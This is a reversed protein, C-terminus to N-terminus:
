RLKSQCYKSDEDFEYLNLCRCSKEGLGTKNNHKLLCIANKGCGGNNKCPNDISVQILSHVVTLGYPRRRIRHFKFVGSGDFKNARLISSTGWDIWFIYSGFVHISFPHALLHHNLLIPIVNRGNFDSTYISHSHADAWYIRNNTNDVTLGNPWRGRIETLNSLIIRDTGDMSSREIRPTNKDWDTWFLYGKKPAVAISRPSGINGSILVIRFDGDFNSVQIQDLAADTWYLREAVWDVAIGEATTQGYNVVSKVRSVIGNKYTASFISNVAIDTFFIRLSKDTKNEYYDLGVISNLNEVLITKNGSVVASRDRNLVDGNYLYLSRGTSYIIKANDGSPICTFNDTRDITYDPLCSCERKPKCIQSCVGYDTCKRNDECRNYSNNRLKMGPPCVCQFGKPSNFCTGECEIRNHICMKFKCLGTEDDGLPCDQIGDCTQTYKICKSHNLCLYNPAECKNPKCNAEDSKDPCDFVGNCRNLAKNCNELEDSKCDWEDEGNLCNKVGDCRLTKPICHPRTTNGGCLFFNSNPKCAEKQNSVTCRSPDEDQSFPCHSIGDCVLSENICAIGNPFCAFEGVECTKPTDCVAEDQGDHCQFEGDCVKDHTLCTTQNDCTFQCKSPKIKHCKVKEDEGDSCDFFWDCVSKISICSDDAKCHFQNKYCPPKNCHSEDVGYPCDEKLDCFKENNICKNYGCSRKGSPCIFTNNCNSEDSEDFCDVNGDCM